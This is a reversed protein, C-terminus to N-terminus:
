KANNHKNGDIMNTINDIKLLLEDRKEPMYSASMLNDIETRARQAISRIKDLEYHQQALINLADLSKNRIESADLAWSNLIEIFLETEAAKLVESLYQKKQAVAIALSATKEKVRTNDYTSVKGLWEETYTPNVQSGHVLADRTHSNIVGSNALDILLDMFWSDEVLTQIGFSQVLDNIIKIKEETKAPLLDHVYADYRTDSHSMVHVFTQEGMKSVLDQIHQLNSSKTFELEFSGGNSSTNVNHITANSCLGVVGAFHAVRDWRWKNDGVFRSKLIVAQTKKTYTLEFQASHSHLPLNYLLSLADARVDVGILSPTRVVPVGEPWQGDDDKAWEDEVQSALLRKEIAELLPPRAINKAGAAANLARLVVLLNQHILTFADELTQPKVLRGELLAAAGIAFAGVDFNETHLLQANPEGQESQKIIHEIIQIYQDLLVYPHFPIAGETELYQGPPIPVPEQHVDKYIIIRKPAIIGWSRLLEKYQNLMNRFLTVKEEAKYSPSGKLAKISLDFTDVLKNMIQIAAFKGINKAEKFATLFESSLFYNLLDSNFAQWQNAFKKSDEFAAVNIANLIEKKDALVKLLNNQNYVERILQSAVTAVQATLQKPYKGSYAQAFSTHLWIPLLDFSGLYSIMKGFANKIDARKSQALSQAFHEWNTKLIENMAIAPLKFYQITIPDAVINSQQLQRVIAQEHALEKFILTAVSYGDIIEQATPQQYFLSELFKIPFLRQIYKKSSPQYGLANKIQEAISVAYKVTLNIKKKLDKDLSVDKRKQEILRILQGLLINLAQTASQTNGQKIEKFLQKWSAGKVSQGAIIMKQLIEPSLTEEPMFYKHLSLLRPIPYDIWGLTAIKADLLTQINKEQDIWNIVLGQQPSVILHVPGAELFKEVTQWQDSYLVPKLESRFTTAEHSTSPAPKGVIICQIKKPDPVAQRNQYYDLAEGISSKVIIEDNSSIWRLGGGAVGIAGGQIKNEAAITDPNTLYSPSPQSPDHVHVIPRAQVIYITKEDENVVFEVDMPKQYFDELALAFSKLTLVADKNLAPAQARQVDDIKKLELKRKELLSPVMRHSKFRLIPYIQMNIDVYFTDVPVLSNVVGENHGYAAQIITIGTTKVKGDPGKKQDRSIGGEAEETFMVGCKPLKTPDTEGIMRQILAPTFPTHEFLSPDKAGLRQTLSKKGIYSIIVDRLATLIEIKEPVVNAISSNGGANALKDTDEKGTSRIMFRENTAKIKQILSDINQTHFTTDFNFDQTQEAKKIIRDFATIVEQELLKRGKLFNKPFQKTDLAEKQVDETPFHQQILDGWRTALDFNDHDKLFTQICSSTIGVFAPVALKYPHKLTNFDKILKKLLQLNGYKYGYGQHVAIDELEAEDFIINKPQISNLSFICFTIISLLVLIKKM